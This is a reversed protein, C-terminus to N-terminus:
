EQSIAQLVNLRAARRAPPLAALVGAVGALVVYTVLQGVPFALESLGDDALAQVLAWGFFTGVALGLLAGIIAIIVAEWRVMARAQRRSMGVARLLGLERTREFVSLALTNTIGLVGILLALSLLATILGLLQDISAAQKDRFEAQNEVDVNPFDATTAEVATRAESTSVGEAAVAYVTTDLEDDFNQAWTELSVLFPPGVIEVNAFIGDVTMEQIGTTSLNVEVTDGVELGEDSAVADAILLGGDSIDEVAGQEVGLDTVEGITAPDVGGIFQQRGEFRFEKYRLPSVAALEPKQALDRAIEPSFPVPGATGTNSIIFDAKLNEDIIATTSAKITAALIGVMSILALGIMLAAATSATRKPNRDANNRALKGPMHFLRTMPAGIARALPGAFLPSLSAVGFFVVAAGLGVIAAPNGPDGFLGLALLGIGAATLGGGAFMRRRSWRTTQPSAERLAAMPSIRAARRAPAISALMTVGVGVLMAVVITRPQFQLTTSPLDSGFARLLNQLGVAILAGAGLGILSAVVGVIASEIVVARLIQSGTAGMARLLGFERTRQAVVISFTNFIIFAGVFLAIYG